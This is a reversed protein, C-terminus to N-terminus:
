EKLELQYKPGPGITWSPRAPEDLVITLRHLSWLRCTLIVGEAM